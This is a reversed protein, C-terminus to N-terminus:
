MKVINEAKDITAPRHAVVIITKESNETLFKNISRESENDLASTAEDMLIIPANKLIARAISIRQREGGSLNGGGKTIVTKYGEPQKLIFEHANAAMAARVIEEGSAGPRGYSINEEISVNYLYPEQPVYSIMNRLKTYGLKEIKEGFIYISGCAPYFGLILKLLTSKGCGTKGTVATMKGSPFDLSLNEIINKQAGPYGFSISRMSIANSGPLRECVGSTSSEYEEELKLFNFLDKLYVLCEALEPIYKGMQLFHYNFSQYLVFIAVLSGLSIDGAKIMWIGLGVFLVSCLLDFGNQFSELISLLLNRKNQEKKLKTIVDYFRNKFIKELAFIKIIEIGNIINILIGTEENKKAIVREGLLKMPKNMGLNLLLLIIDAGLLLATMKRNLLLMSFLYVVVSIFPTVVRRFRSGYVDGAKNINYSLKSLFDGSSKQEYYGLPLRMAKTYVKKQLKATARKAENNYVITFIRWIIILIGGTLVCRAALVLIYSKDANGIGIYLNNVFFSTIVDLMSKIVAMIVIAAMYMYRRGGMFKLAKILIDM